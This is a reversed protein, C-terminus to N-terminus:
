SIRGVRHVRVSAVLRVARGGVADAGSLLHARAFGRDPRIDELEQQAEVFGAGVEIGCCNSRRERLREHVDVTAARDREIASEHQCRQRPSARAERGNARSASAVSSASSSRWVRTCVVDFIRSSRPTRSGPLKISRELKKRRRSSPSQFIM